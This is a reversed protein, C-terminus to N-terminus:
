VLTTAATANEGSPVGQDGATVILRDDQPIEAARVMESIVGDLAGAHDGSAAEITILPGAVDEPQWVLVRARLLVAAM